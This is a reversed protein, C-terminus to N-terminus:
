SIPITREFYLNKKMVLVCLMHGYFACFMVRLFCLLFIFYMNIYFHVDTVYDAKQHMMEYLVHHLCTMYYFVYLFFDLNEFPFFFHWEPGQNPCLGIKVSPCLFKVAKSFLFFETRWLLM